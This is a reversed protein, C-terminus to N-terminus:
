QKKKKKHYFPYNLYIQFVSAVILAIEAIAFVVFLIIRNENQWQNYNAIDYYIASDSRIDVVQLTEGYVSSHKESNDVVTIKLSSDEILDKKLKDFSDFDYSEEYVRWTIRYSNEDTDFYLMTLKNSGDSIKVDTIETELVYTNDTTANQIGYLMIAFASVLILQLAIAFVIVRTFKQKKRKSIEGM